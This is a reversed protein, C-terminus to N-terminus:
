KQGNPKKKAISRLCSKLDNELEEPTMDTKKERAFKPLFDRHRVKKNGASKAVVLMLDARNNAERKQKQMWADVLASSQHPNSRNWEEETM